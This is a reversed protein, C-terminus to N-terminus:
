LKNIFLINLSVKYFKYIFIFKRVKFIDKFNSFDIM